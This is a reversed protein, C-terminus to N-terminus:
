HGLLRVAAEVEAPLARRQALAAPLRTMAGALARAAAPEHRARHALRATEHAARRAPRRMWAVLVRNRSLQCARVVEDRAPSPHHRAVVDPVYCAPWGAAALDYALLQEEGGHFLLRSFGGAALFAERRCVAACGLFGLIRPGPLDRRPLPSASMAANAPDPRSAAGVLIRAALLGAQPCAGLVAAATALSGPEWWSDDDSFAVYRSACRRVGVNRAWAGRNRRLVILEAGPFGERVAAATGDTSANDVVVLRPREPLATLQRLTRALETRRNWTAIVVSIRRDGGPAMESPRLLTM